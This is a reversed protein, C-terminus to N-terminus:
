NLLYTMFLPLFSSGFVVRRIPLVCTSGHQSPEGGERGAAVDPEMAMAMVAECSYRWGM